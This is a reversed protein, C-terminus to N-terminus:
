GVGGDGATGDDPAGGDKHKDKWGEVVEKPITLSGRVWTKGDKEYSEFEGYEHALRMIQEQMAPPLHGHQSDDSM